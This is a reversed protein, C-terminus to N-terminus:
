GDDSENRDGKRIWDPLAETAGDDGTEGERTDGFEEEDRNDILHPKIGLFVIDLFRDLESIIVSRRDLCRLLRKRINFDRKQLSKKKGGQTFSPYPTYRLRLVPSM